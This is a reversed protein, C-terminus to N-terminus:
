RWRSSELRVTSLHGSTAYLVSYHSTFRPGARIGLRTLREFTRSRDGASTTGVGTSAM